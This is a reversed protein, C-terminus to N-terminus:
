LEKAKALAAVLTETNGKLDPVKDVGFSSRIAVWATQVAKPDAGPRTMAAKVTEQIQRILDDDDAAPEEAPAEAAPEEAPAEAAPAPEPEPEAKKPRGPSKKFPVEVTTTEPPGDAKFQTTEIVRNGSAALVANLAATNAELAATNAKIIDEIM